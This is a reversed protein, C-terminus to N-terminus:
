QSALGEFIERLKPDEWDIEGPIRKEVRLGKGIIISTPLMKAKYQEAIKGGNDRIIHIFPSSNLGTKALFAKIDEDSHDASVAALHVSGKLSQIFRIMKPFENICPGCWSAWFHVVVPKDPFDSLSFKEGSVDIADFDNAEVIETPLRREKEPAGKSSAHFAYYAVGGILAILLAFLFPKLRSRDM